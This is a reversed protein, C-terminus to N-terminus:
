GYFIGCVGRLNKILVMGLAKEKFNEYKKLVRTWGKFKQIKKVSKGKCVGSEIIDNSNDRPHRFPLRALNLAKDPNERHPNM